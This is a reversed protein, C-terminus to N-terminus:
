IIQIKTKDIGNEFIGKEYLKFLNEFNILVESGDYKFQRLTRENNFVSSYFLSYINLESIFDDILDPDMTPSTILLAQTNLMNLLEVENMQIYDIDNPHALYFCDTEFSDLIKTDFFKGDIKTSSITAEQPDFVINYM